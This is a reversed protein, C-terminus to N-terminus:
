CLASCCPMRVTMGTMTFARSCAVQVVPATPAACVAGADHTHQAAGDHVMEQTWISNLHALIPQIFADGVAARDGRDAAWPPPARRMFVQYPTEPPAEYLGVDNSHFNSTAPLDSIADAVLVPDHARAVAAECTFGVSCQASDVAQTRNFQRVLHTPEPFPPLPETARAALMIVRARGQM